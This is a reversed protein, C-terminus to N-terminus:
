FIRFLLPCTSTGNIVSAVLEGLAPGHKFGHGSGGGLLFLNSLQPHIDFIFNGTQSNEYPCVRSEIMPAGQLGPFRHSLFRRAKRLVEDSSVRDSRSPDFAEGRIDVGIKFGRGNNGPIGYYFNTGDLDIWVPLNDYEVSSDQPTGFYYVEQKTCYLHETVVEPFVKPLWSGLAFVFVDARIRQGNALVVDTMRGNDIKGPIAHQQVFVGGEDIFAQQVAACSDRAKLYGGYPDFWAHHLDECNILPHRKKLDARTVMELPVKHKLAFPISDEVLPEQEHYCFWMVGTNYFIKKKFRLENEKWLQLARVNLDFYLENRGYSSRIVRTEDGSSSRSNGGGWSDVLIVQYGKRLLNLASWGGFAGAGIVCISHKQDFSPLPTAGPMRVSAPQFTNVNQASESM